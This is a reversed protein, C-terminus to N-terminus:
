EMYFTRRFGRNTFRNRPIPGESLFVVRGHGNGRVPVERGCVLVTDEEAESPLCDPWDRWIELVDWRTTASGVVALGDQDGQSNNNNDDDEDEPNLHHRRRCRRAIAMEVVRIAQAMDGVEFAVTRPRLADAIELLRAYFVDEPACTMTPSPPRSSSPVLALKPEHNRVGRGTDTDFGRQSIYPPNSVLIDIRRRRPSPNDDDNNDISTMWTDTFIDAQEFTVEKKAGDEEEAIGSSHEPYHSPRRRRAGCVFNHRLNKRALHVARPEVDFGFVRLAPSQAAMMMMTGQDKEEKKMAAGWRRRRSSAIGRAYLLLGICGTGSCLDLIRLHDKREDRSEGGQVQVVRGGRSSSSSPSSLVLDALMAVWAETEPRPILVGKECLMELDGFPQTGLVYQLPEGAGRRAVLRAIRDETTTTTTTAHSITTSRSSSNNDSNLDTETPSRYASGLRRTAIMRARRAAPARHKRTRGLPPPSLSLAHNHNHFQSVPPEPLTELVHGRIWRLETQASEVTRCVPLLTALHPSISGARRFLSPALRPM